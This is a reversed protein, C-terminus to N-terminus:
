VNRSGHFAGKNERGLEYMVDGDVEMMYDDSYGHTSQGTKMGGEIEPILLCENITDYNTDVDYIYESRGLDDDHDGLEDFSHQQITPPNYYLEEFPSTSFNGQVGFGLMRNPTEELLDAYELCFKEDICEINENEFRQQYEEADREDDDDDDDIQSGSLHRLPWNKNLGNRFVIDDSGFEDFYDAEVLILDLVEDATEGRQAYANMNVNKSPITSKLTTRVLDWLRQQISDRLLTTDIEAETNDLPNNGHANGIQLKMSKQRLSPSQAQTSAALISSIIHFNNSHTTM